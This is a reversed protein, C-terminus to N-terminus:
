GVNRVENSVAAEDDHRRAYKDVNARLTAAFRHLAM